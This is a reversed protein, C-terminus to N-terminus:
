ASPSLRPRQREVREATAAAQRGLPTTDYGGSGREFLRAGLREELASIRRTVTTENVRLNRAAGLAPAPSKWFM